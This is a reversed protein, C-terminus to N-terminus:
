EPPSELYPRIIKTWLRYAAASPHFGDTDLLEPRANGDPGLMPTSIDIYVLNDDKEVYERILENTRAELLTIETKTAGPYISTFAIRTEPLAKRIKEVFKQFDGLVREPSKGKILDNGGGRVVIMRPQYPIVIRDAYYVLDELHSGGFARNYVPLGEFDKALTTWLRLASSGVFEIGNKPPPSKKDAAEFAVIEEEYYKPDREASHSPTQAAGLLLCWLVWRINKIEGYMSPLLAAPIVLGAM